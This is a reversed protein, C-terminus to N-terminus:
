LDGEFVRGQNTTLINQQTDGFLTKELRRPAERNVEPMLHGYINMTTTISAHGLQSQIYKPHEGQAILLATYSHRLSHFKVRRLGAFRLAKKFEREMVKYCLPSGSDNCFVLGDKLYSSTLSRLAKVLVPPMDVARKSRESKPTTFTGRYYSQRVYIQGKAFDIDGWRVALLEGQRLGTMVACLFFPCYKPTVHQLFLKIEQTNLIDTDRQKQRLRKIHEGLDKNTYGKQYAYKLIGKLLVLINNISKPSLNKQILYSKFEDVSEPSIDKTVFKGFFPAIHCNIYGQYLGYTSKKLDGLKLAIQTHKKDWIELFGNFTVREPKIDFKGKRIEALKDGLAQEAEKKNPGIIKFRRKGRSDYYHIQYNEGRKRIGGRGM